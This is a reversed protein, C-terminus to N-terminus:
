SVQSWNPKLHKKTLFNSCCKLIQKLIEFVSKLTTDFITIVVRRLAILWSILNYYMMGHICLILHWQLHYQLQREDSKKKLGLLAHDQFTMVLNSFLSFILKEYTFAACFIFNEMLSKKLIHSWIQVKWRFPWM